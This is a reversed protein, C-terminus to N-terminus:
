RIPLVMIFSLNLSEGFSAMKMYYYIQQKRIVTGLPKGRENIILNLGGKQAGKGNLTYSLTYFCFFLYPENKIISTNFNIKSVNEMFCPSKYIVGEENMQSVM